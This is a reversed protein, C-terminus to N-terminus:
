IPSVFAQHIPPQFCRVHEVPGESTKLHKNLVAFIQDNLVRFHRARSVLRKLDVGGIVEDRADVAYVKVIHYCFDLAEFRNEQGLLAILTCGAWNLGEGFCQEVTLENQRLPQCYNFQIASWLRHFERCEDVNMVGNAPPTEKWIEHVLFSKIRKLVVEFISLGCCLREKTLLDGEQGNNIQEKTGLKTIISMVQLSNYQTELKKMKGDLKEGEKLYPRPIIGQFPAAHLLDMIEEQSLFSELQLCFLIANGIERFGQFVDTRLYPYQMIPELSAHYYELVGTSGYEFRPLGCKKPMGEILQAIYQQLQGHLVSRIIKLLEEIVVAIGQYGLLRAMCAFHIDGVFNSYLSGIANFLSNQLKTGFFFHHAQKPPQERSVKDVLPLSTPVFRNTSSNYCYNPLFDFNLEWFVHLTIRGYPASVSHNAEGLMNKFPILKVCKSLLQHTMRNVELLNELDVVGCIDGSEFRGIACDLSRIMANNLRQTILKNLDISRGLLQVHRQKLLTEYRNSRTGLKAASEASVRALESKFKKDLLMSCAQAKYYAFIQDSLKYVFQDFCLNVEAEIEDYLFQKKFVTMAYHASDNYLDLPYLVYEMMSPNKSELIHNTLIWPMSMEIPFQIRAGMTLELYFERFWLQSLDCCERLVENFRLLKEFFFSKKLFAEIHEVTEKELEKRMVKKGGKESILSELMTRVMYLQTSSPGVDRDPIKINPGAKPDKEGKLIPDGRGHQGDAWDGGTERISLLITKLLTAKKSKVAKRLPERLSVQIFEQVETHISHRIAESFVPELRSMLGYLGKIMAIVEVLAFKEDSNYNYRTAREYEEAEEPCHPNAYKDTPHLLKWSYLEMVQATWSSLLRLGRLALSTLETYQEDSRPDNSSTVMENRYRALESIFKVHEERISDMRHLLNYQDVVKDDAGDAAATWKERMGEFNPCMKLYSVLAIQVDGFLPVVPFQKFMKDIKSLSIRKKQDMKLVSSEKGDMLFILFGMVKLLLHKETPTIYMNSEHLRVSQNLVDALVDEYGQITELGEKLLFTIKNQNALFLSLNQSEEIMSVDGTGRRLFTDARKYFAYDNNLCAKMNKLADLVAFMNIFKGLTLLYRESIFDKRREPHSLTKVEKCFRAIANQAFHMFSKLKRVEPELVEVTKEYIEIRNPQDDSKVSPVARSCSRWTYLMVAYKEGEELMENLGKHVDAEELYKSICTIFAKSDEFNTDFNSIYTVSAPPAEIQPQEDPLNITELQRVNSIGDELTAM